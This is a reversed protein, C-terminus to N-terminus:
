LLGLKALRSRIASPQRQFLKALDVVSVGEGFKQTLLNDDEDTWKEYAKSYQARIRELREEWDSREDQIFGFAAADERMDQLVRYVLRLIEQEVRDPSREEGPLSMWCHQIAQRIIQDVMLPGMMERPSTDAALKVVHAQSVPSEEEAM